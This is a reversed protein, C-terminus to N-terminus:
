KLEIDGSNSKVRLNAKGKGTKRYKGRKKKGGKVTSKVTMDGKTDMTINLGKISNQRLQIYADGNVTNVQMEGFVAINKIIIDGNRTDVTTKGSIHLDKAAVDGDQLHFRATGSIKCRAAALDGETLNINMQGPIITNAISADGDKLKIEMKQCQLNKASLYFDGYKINVHGTKIMSQPPLYLTVRPGYSVSYYKRKGTWKKENMGILEKWSLEKLGSEKLYLVKDRVSYSFPNKNNKCPIEYSLYAYAKKSTKISFDLYELNAEIGQVKGLKKEKMKYTYTKAASSQRGSVCCFGYMCIFMVIMLQMVKMVRKM